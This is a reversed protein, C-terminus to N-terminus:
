ELVRDARVLISRPVDLGIARATRLDLLMRFHAPQQIPLDGPKVGRELIEVIYHVAQDLMAPIFPAYSLLPRLPDDLPWLFDTITPLRKRISYEVFQRRQAWITPGSTLLLADPSQADISALGAAVDRSTSIEEVHITLDLAHAAMRLDALSPNVEESPFGPPLYGWAIAVRRVGPKVDRLIELLKGWIGTGAYATMGTVNKGPRALSTALGAEVPYGSSWMVIPIVTDAEQAARAHATTSVLILDVRSDLLRSVESRMAQGYAAASEVLIYDKGEHWGVVAMREILLANNGGFGPYLGIRYPKQARKTQARAIRALAVLAGVGVLFNRRGISDL